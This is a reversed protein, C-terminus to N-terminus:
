INKSRVLEILEKFEKDDGAGKWMNAFRCVLQLNGKEYHGGSDIRDLSCWLQCDISDDDYSMELGTLACLDEQSIMLENIYHRLEGESMKLNKIKITQSAQQGNSNNVTDRTTAIIRAVSKDRGSIYRVSSKGSKSEKAKWEPRNHWPSLDDGNILAHAYSPNDDRLQQLTAETVLFDKAKPHLGRWSLPEGKLNNKSWPQCPKHCVYVNDSGTLPHPDVELTVLPKESTSKTWWINDGDKHIWLDGNTESVITMLKFWRSATSKSPKEEEATLLNNMCYDIYANKDGSVWYQHTFEDNMTAVTGRELCAPWEYNGRGFNAIYVKAYEVDNEISSHTSEELYELYKTLASSYMNHGIENRKKFISLQSVQTIIKSFQLTDEISSLPEQTIKAEQSWESLSGDIASSYKEVSSPSLGKKIMWHEFSM